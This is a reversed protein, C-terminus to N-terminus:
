NTKINASDGETVEVKILFGADTHSKQTDLQYLSEPTQTQKAASSSKPTVKCLHVTATLKAVKSITSRAPIDFTNGSPGFAVASNSVLSQLSECDSVEPAKTAIVNGGDCRIGM